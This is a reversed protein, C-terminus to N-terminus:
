RRRRGRRDTRGRASQGDARLRDRPVEHWFRGVIGAAGKWETGTALVSALLTIGLPAAVATIASGLLTVGWSGPLGTSRHRAIELWGNAGKEVEAAALHDVRGAHNIAGLAHFDLEAAARSPYSAVALVVPQDTM